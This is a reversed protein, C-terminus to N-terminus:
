LGRKRFNKLRSALLSGFPASPGDGSSDQESTAMSTDTLTEELTDLLNIRDGCIGLVLVKGPVRVLAISKKVGMYHSELVEIRRAPGAGIRRGALKRVGALLLLVMALVAGLAAIMKLGAVMLDPMPNM